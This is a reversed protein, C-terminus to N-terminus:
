SSRVEDFTNMGAGKDMMEVIARRSDGENVDIGKIADILLTVRVGNKLADLVTARVCYDTALGGVFLHEIAAARLVEIFSKGEEDHGEFASYGEDEFTDGASIIVTDRPLKLGPHFEAGRTRQLCHPPWPGGFEKFHITKEPHWDRTAYIPLGWAAFLEIYRNFVPVVRDGEPVPLAGGPCFDNQVDVIILAKKQNM